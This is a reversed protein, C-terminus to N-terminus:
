HLSCKEECTLYKNDDICSYHVKAQFTKPDDSSDQKALFTIFYMVGAGAMHYNAKSVELFEYSTAKGDNYLELSKRSLRDLLGRMTEGDPVLKNDGFDVPKYNFGYRFQTFDMDFGETEEVQKRMLHYEEDMTLAETGKYECRSLAQVCDGEPGIELGFLVDELQYFSMAAFEEEGQFEKEM